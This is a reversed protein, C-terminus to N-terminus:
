NEAPSEVEETEAKGLGYERVKHLLTKYSVGLMHAARSKNGRTKKLVHEIVEREARQAAENAIETLTKAAREVAAIDLSVDIGLHEPEIRRDCLIVAREIVNELERANGPWRYHRLFDLAEETLEVEKALHNSFYETYFGALLEVDEPRDRLPPITFTVVALRYFLDERLHGEKVATDVLRNTAAVVRPNIPINKSGGVRRIEREQLARLLKVQLAPPMDGIEDLFITGETAAEFVGIRGQTAGTFSGAEHGFLESELLEPPLAACNIALFPKERRPSADHIFRALLEKGTGSEGLILVSSDVRAVLRAQDLIKKLPPSHTLLSRGRRSRTGASRDFIRRHDIVQRLMLSLNQPEFPKTIFDNAGDKLARVAIEISGFATMIVFPLSPYLKRADALLEIGNRGPLKFDSLVCAWSGAGLQLLAEEASSCAVPKFGENDLVACLVERLAADDEVVLISEMTALPVALTLGLSVM